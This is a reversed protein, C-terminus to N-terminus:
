AHDVRNDVSTQSGQPRDRASIVVREDASTKKSIVATEKTIIVKSIVVLAPVKNLTETITERVFLPCIVLLKSTAIIM